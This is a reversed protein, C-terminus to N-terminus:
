QWDELQLDPIHKMHKQNHTVMICKNYRATSGIFLDMVDIPTGMNRLHLRIDAYEKFSSYVPIIKFLSEITEIDKFNKEKNGKVAGYYLEAISMESICCNDMGVSYIKKIISKNGRLMEIIVNTDLLYM